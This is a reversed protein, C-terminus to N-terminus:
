SKIFFGSEDMNFVREPEIKTMNKSALYEETYQFWRRLIGEAVSARAKILNQSMRESLEPYRKLFAQYWNKGHRGNTLLTNRGTKVVIIQVTELLQNKIVPFGRKHM